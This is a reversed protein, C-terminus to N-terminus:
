ERGALRSLLYVQGWALENILERSHLRPNFGWVIELEGRQLRSVCKLLYDEPLHPDVQRPMRESSVDASQQSRIAEGDHKFMIQPRPLARLSRVPPTPACLYRLAGFGHGRSPLRGWQQAVSRVGEHLSFGCDLEVPFPTHSTFWGVTQSVDIGAIEARGHGLVDILVASRGTGRTYAHALSWLLADQLTLGGEPLISLRLADVVERDLRAACYQQDGVLNEGPRLEVAAPVAEVSAWAPLAAWKRAEEQLSTARTTDALAEAWAAFSAGGMSLSSHGGSLLHRYTALLDGVLIHLSTADAILHHITLCLRPVGDGKEIVALNWLPGETLDLRTQWETLDRVWADDRGANSFVKIHVEQAAAGSLYQRWGQDTRQFRLNLADHHLAVLTAADQLATMDLADPPVMSLTSLTSLNYHSLNGLPHAGQDRLNFLEFFRAQTPTLPVQREGSATRDPTREPAVSRAGPVASPAPRATTGVRGASRACLDAITPAELADGFTLHIGLHRARVVMQLCQLSDGGLDFFNDDPAVRAHGLLEAWLGAMAAEAESAERSASVSRGGADADLVAPNIPPLASFDLKGNPTLPLREVLVVRAPVLHSPLHRAAHDRLASATVAGVTRPVAYAVLRTESDPGPLWPLVAVDDVEPHSRLWAEIEGPEIRFGRVKIQRDNRGYIVVDGNPLYRGLDGTRFVRDRPNDSWPARAFCQATLDPKGLYGRTLHPTRIWVEGLEGVGAPMGAPSIVLLQAWPVGKGVPIAGDRDNVRDRERSIGPAIEGAGETMVAVDPHPPVVHYAMAQPTETAGYYNVVTAEPVLRQLADAVSRTLPEGGLFLRRM